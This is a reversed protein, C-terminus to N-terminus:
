AWPLARGTRSSIHEEMSKLVQPCYFGSYPLWVKERELGSLILMLYIAKNYESM